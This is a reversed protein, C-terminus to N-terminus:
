NQWQKGPINTTQPGLPPEKADRFDWVWSIWSTPRPNKEAPDTPLVWTSDPTRALTYVAQGAGSVCLRLPLHNIACESPHRDPYGCGGMGRDVELQVTCTWIKPSPRRVSAVLPNIAQDGRGHEPLRAVPTTQIVKVLRSETARNLILSVM